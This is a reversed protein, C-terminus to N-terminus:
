ENHVDEGDGDYGLYIVPIKKNDTAAREEKFVDAFAAEFDRKLQEPTTPSKVTM